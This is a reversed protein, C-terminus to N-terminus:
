VTNAERPLRKGLQAFLVVAPVAPIMMLLWAVLTNSTVSLAFGGLAPAFVWGAGAFLGLAGNYSGIEGPPALNSPMTMMPIASFNEGFTLVVIAVMIVAIVTGGSEGLGIAGLMIYSISYLLVAM